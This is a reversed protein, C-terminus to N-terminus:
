ISSFVFLIRVIPQSEAGYLGRLLPQCSEMECPWQEMEQLENGVELVELVKRNKKM